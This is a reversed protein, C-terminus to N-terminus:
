RRPEMPSREAFSNEPGCDDCETANESDRRCTRCEIPDPQSPRPEQGTGGCRQCRAVDVGPAGDFWTAVEVEGHGHCALCDQAEDVLAKWAQEFQEQSYGSDRLECIIRMAEPDAQIARVLSAVVRARDLYVVEADKPATM